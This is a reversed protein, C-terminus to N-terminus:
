ESVVIFVRFCSGFLGFRDPSAAGALGCAVLFVKLKGLFNAKM